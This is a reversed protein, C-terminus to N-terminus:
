KFRMGSLFVMKQDMGIGLIIGPTERCGVYEMKYGQLREM